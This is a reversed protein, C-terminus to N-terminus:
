DPSEFSTNMQIEAVSVKQNILGCTLKLIQGPCVITVILQQQQVTSLNRKTILSCNNSSGLTQRQM